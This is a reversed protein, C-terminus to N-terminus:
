AYINGKVYNLTFAVRESIFLQFFDYEIYCIKPM